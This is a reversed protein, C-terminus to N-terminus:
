GESTPKSGCANTPRPQFISRPRSRPDVGAPNRLRCEAVVRNVKAMDRANFGLALDFWYEGSPLRKLNKVAYGKHRRNLRAELEKASL